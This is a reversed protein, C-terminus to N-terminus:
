TENARESPPKKDPPKGMGSSQYLLIAFGIAGCAIVATIAAFVIITILKYTPRPIEPSYNSKPLEHYRRVITYVSPAGDAEPLVQSDFRPIYAVDPIQRLETIRPPKLPPILHPSYNIPLMKFHRARQPIQLAM